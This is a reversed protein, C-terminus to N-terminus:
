ANSKEILEKRIGFLSLAQDILVIDVPSFAPDPGVCYSACTRDLSPLSMSPNYGSSRDLNFLFVPESHMMVSM